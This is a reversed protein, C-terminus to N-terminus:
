TAESAAEVAANHQEIAEREREYQAFWSRAADLYRAITQPGFLTEPRLYPQMEPKSKWDLFESCYAVVRRLDRESVGDRLRAVILGTHAASGQYAIGNERSLRDLVARVSALEEPTGNGRKRKAKSPPSIPPDSIQVPSPIPIPIPIPPGERPEENALRSAQWKAKTAKGGRKSNNRLKGLWEIRGHTGKIRIWGERDTTEALRCEVLLVPDVFARVFGIPLDYSQEQTCQRWLFAMRGLADFRGTGLLQGLYELRGDSFAVDEIRVSAAM